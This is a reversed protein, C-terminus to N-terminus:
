LRAAAGFCGLVAGLAILVSWIMPINKSERKLSTKFPKKKQQSSGLLGWFAGLLGWFVALVGRPVSKPFDNFFRHFEVGGFRSFDHFVM